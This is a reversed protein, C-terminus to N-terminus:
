RSNRPVHLREEERVHQLHGTLKRIADYSEKLKEKAIHIFCVATVPAMHNATIGRNREM